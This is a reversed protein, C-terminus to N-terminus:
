CLSCKETRWKRWTDLVRLKISTIMQNGHWYSLVLWCSKQKHCHLFYRKRRLPKYAM